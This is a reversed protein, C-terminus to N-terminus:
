LENKYSGLIGRFYASFSNSLEKRKEADTRTKERFLKERSLNQGFLLYIIFGIGPLMIMVMLWAWTTTPDKREIFILSLSFFINAIIIVLAVILLFKM